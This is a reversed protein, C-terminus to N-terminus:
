MKDTDEKEELRRERPREKVSRERDKSKATVRERKETRGTEGILKLREISANDADIYSTDVTEITYM